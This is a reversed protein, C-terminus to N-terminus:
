VTPPGVAAVMSPPPQAPIVSVLPLLGFVDPGLLRAALVAVPYVIVRGFVSRSVLLGADRVVRRGLGTTV